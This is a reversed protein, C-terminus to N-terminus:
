GRQDQRQGRAPNAALKRMPLRITIETGKGIGSDVEIRGDYDDVIRRVVSLGLGTGEEFGSYFPEFLHAKDEESMGRGTDAFKMLFEGSKRDQEFDVALTGGRPMAKVSNKLLNWFVQKFQSANGYYASDATLFNGRVDIAGNMEGSAQLMKLTEDLINSLDIISFVQKAPAAFDLFKEISQSVRESERLVIDMLERQGADLRLEGKLVQVSGSIAALPNRIEHAMTSSVRGAEALKEKIILEREALRLAERTKQLSGALSNMLAAIVFFVSWAIFITFLVSGLTQTRQREAGFYRIVGFYMLDVLLGFFVASMAATIFAARGSIVLGASIIAFVYLFYMSGSLGGSIYVLGTVLLLDFSVQLYAQFVYRKGWKYFILYLLSLAYAGLVIYFLPLIPIFAPTSYQIIVASVLLSTVVVLRLIIFWLLSKKEVAPQAM